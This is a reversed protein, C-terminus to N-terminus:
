RDRGLPQPVCPAVTLRRGTRGRQAASVTSRLWLLARAARRPPTIPLIPADPLASFAVLDKRGKLYTNALHQHPEM